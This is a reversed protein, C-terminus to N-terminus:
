NNNSSRRLSQLQGIQAELWASQSQALAMAEEMRTFRRILSERRREIRAEVNEMRDTLTIVSGDIREILGKISGAGSGLIVDATVELRTALGRSFTLDGVAGTASGDYSVLLGEIPSGAVGTLVTGSGTAAFGGITGIVDTGTWAGAAIGLSASGDAGGATYSVQFGATAGANNHAIRLQGNDDLATIAAKGRGQQTTVIGGLDFTGGGANDSTVSLTFTKSGATKATATLLGNEWTVDVDTGVANQVATKLEALTGGASVVLNTLFSSGDTRSGAITIVDGALVGPDAGGAVRVDSWLTTDDAPTGVGDSFLANAAQTTHALRTDFETNLADVIQSLTMGNSLAVSYTRNSGTDLIQLLDSVGDDVYTGGFGTGTVGAWTPAQTINIGYTGAVTKSSSGVYSLGSGTAEAYIGFLRKVGEAGNELSTRM